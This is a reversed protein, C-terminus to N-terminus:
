KLLEFHWFNSGSHCMYWFPQLGLFIISNVQNYLYTLESHTLYAKLNVGSELYLKVFDVRNHILADRLLENMDADKM